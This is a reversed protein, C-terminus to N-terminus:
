FKGFLYHIISMILVLSGSFAINLEAVTAIERSNGKSYM